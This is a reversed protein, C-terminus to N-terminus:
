GAGVLTTFAEDFWRAAPEIAHRTTVSAAGRQGLQVATDPHDYLSRMANAAADLDPEAWVAEPPYPFAGTGVERLEYPILRSNDDTMFETNGSWGTAIAPRGAAMASAITLGLGESRHLSVYCDLCAFLGRMQVSDLHEESLIIDARGNAAELVEAPANGAARANISKLVLAAGDDPGFARQYADILGLPNKRRLVSMYDFVFGFLFREDPLGVDARRLKPPELPAEIVLPHKRVKSGACAALADRVHDSACWVEDVLDFAPRLADPFKGVEWYWIGIRRNGSQRKFEATSGYGLLEDANMALVTVNFPTGSITVPYPHRHRHLGPRVVTTALPIGSARVMRAVMRGAAAVGFDGELYGVLNVGVLREVAADSQLLPHGRSATGYQRAWGILGDQDRGLPDPFTAQLTPDDEWTAHLHRSVRSGPGAPGALWDAFAAGHDAGFAPAPPEEHERDADVVARWYMRRVAPTLRVGEDTQSWAYADRESWGHARLAGSRDGLIRRWGPHEDVRVLVPDADRDALRYLARPEEYGSAGAAALFSDLGAGLYCLGLPEGDVTWTGDATRVLERESMNWFGLNSSPDPVTVSAFRRAVLELWRQDLFYGDDPEDLAHRRLRECLFALAPAGDHGVGIVRGHFEGWRLLAQDRGDDTGNAALVLGRDTLTFLDPVPAFVEIGPDLYVAHQAGDRLLRQLLHPKLAAALEPESYYTAMRRLEVADLELAAPTLVDYPLRDLADDDTADLVLATVGVGPHHRQFTQVLRHVLALDRKAAISCM